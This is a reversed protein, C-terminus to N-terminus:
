WFRTNQGILSRSCVVPFCVLCRKVHLDLALKRLAPCFHKFGILKVHWFTKSGFFFSDSFKMDSLLEWFRKTWLITLWFSKLDLFVEPWFIHTDSFINKLFMQTSVINSVLCIKSLLFNQALLNPQFFIQSCFFTLKFSKLDLVNKSWLPPDGVEFVEM